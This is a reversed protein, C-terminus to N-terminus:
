MRIDSFYQKKITSTPISIGILLWFIQRIEAFFSKFNRCHYQFITGFDSSCHRFQFESESISISKLILNRNWFRFRFRFGSKSMSIEVCDFNFITPIEIEDFTFLRFRFRFESKSMSISIGSFRFMSIEVFNLYLM